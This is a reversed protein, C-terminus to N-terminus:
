ANSWRHGRPGGRFRRGRRKCGPMLFQGSSLRGQLYANLVDEVPGAVWSLLEIGAAEVMVAVPRSVAGCLLVDVGLAKLHGVKSIPLPEGLAEEIRQSTQGNETEVVLVRQAVDFVPSIRGNWVPLAVKV